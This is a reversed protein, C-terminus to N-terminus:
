HPKESRPPDVLGCLEVRVDRRAKYEEIQRAASDFAHRVATLVDGGRGNQDRVLLIEGPVQLDILVDPTCYDDRAHSKLEVTVRCGIIQDYRQEMRAVCEGLLAELEFSLTTDRSALELPPDM